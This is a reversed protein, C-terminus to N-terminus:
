GTVHLNVLIDRLQDQWGQTRPWPTIGFQLM